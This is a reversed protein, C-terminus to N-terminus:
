KLTKLNISPTNLQSSLFRHEVGIVIVQWKHWIPDIAEGIVPEWKKEHISPISSLAKCKKM